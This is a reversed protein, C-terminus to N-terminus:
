GRRQRIGSDRDESAGLVINVDELRRTPTPGSCNEALSSRKKCGRRQRIGSDRDESTACTRRTLNIRPTAPHTHTHPPHALPNLATTNVVRAQRMGQTPTLPKDLTTSMKLTFTEVEEAGKVDDAGDEELAAAGADVVAAAVAAGDVAVGAVVTAGGEVVVGEGKEEAGKVDDAGDEELAAAGADV